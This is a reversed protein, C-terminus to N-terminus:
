WIFNSPVIICALLDRWAPNIDPRALALWSKTLTAAVLFVYGLKLATCDEPLLKIIQMMYIFPETLSFFELKLRQSACYRRFESELEVDEFLLLRDHLGQTYALQGQGPTPAAAWIM